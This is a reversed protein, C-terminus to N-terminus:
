KADILQSAIAACQTKVYEIGRYVLNFFSHYAPCFDGGHGCDFGLWWIDDDEGPDVVHCVKPESMEHPMCKGSFTLEGHCQVHVSGHHQEFFPHSSNVGVYGCLFGGSKNRVILCPLGTKEDQFQIKDPENNWGGSPWGSKDILNTLEINKM